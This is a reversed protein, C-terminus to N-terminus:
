NVDRVRKIGKLPKGTSESYFGTGGLYDKM